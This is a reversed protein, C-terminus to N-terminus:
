ASSPVLSRRGPQGSAPAGAWLPGSVASGPGPGQGLRAAPGPIAAAVRPAPPLASGPRARTPGQDLGPCGWRVRVGRRSWPARPHFLGPRARLLLPPLRARSHGPERSPEPLGSDSRSDLHVRLVEADGRAGSACRGAAAWPARSCSSQGSSAVGRGACPALRPAGPPRPLRPRGARRVVWRAAGEERRGCGTPPDGLAGSRAGARKVLPQPRGRVPIPHWLCPPPPRPSGLLGPEWSPCLAGRLASAAPGSGRLGRCM